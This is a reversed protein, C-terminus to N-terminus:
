PIMLPMSGNINCERDNAFFTRQRQVRMEAKLASSITMNRQKKAVVFLNKKAHKIASYSLSAQRGGDSVSYSIIPSVSLYLCIKDKHEIVNVM